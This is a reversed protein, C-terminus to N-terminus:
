YHRTAAHGEIKVKQLIIPTLPYIYPLQMFFLIFFFVSCFVQLYLGPPIILRSEGLELAITSLVNILQM